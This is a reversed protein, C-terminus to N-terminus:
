KPGVAPCARIIHPFPPPLLAQERYKQLVFKEPSWRPEVSILALKKLQKGRMYTSGQQLKRSKRKEMQEEFHAGFNFFVPLFMM